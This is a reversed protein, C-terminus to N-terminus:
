VYLQKLKLSDRTLTSNSKSMWATATYTHQVKTELSPIHSVVLQM